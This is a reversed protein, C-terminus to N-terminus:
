LTARDCDVLGSGFFPDFGPAGLDAASAQLRSQIQAPTFSPFRQKILAAAGAVHPCAMSTGSMSRYGNSLHTSNIGVGPAAITVPNAGPPCCTTGFSSFDAKQKNIDVAAVAIAGPSNAPSGVCRFPESPRGSNGAACVVTIGAANLQAIANTYAVRQCSNSGLSMSVIHMGNQRAWAMGALIWSTNGSGADNLVKVAYIRSSPAVGVVGIRNNRAGIVGACHTGHGHGDNFSAVGPIFSAGGSIILDSHSAIGTDLVAVNVGTGRIGRAWAKPANVMNINWPIPQRLLPLPTFPPKPFIPLGPKPEIPFDPRPIPFPKPIPMPFPRPFPMPGGIEGSYTTLSLMQQYYDSAGQQYGQQFYDSAIQSLTEESLSDSADLRDVYDDMLAFMEIDEEVALVRDDKQFRAVDAESLTITTSGLGDFHLIDAPKIEADTAMLSVGDQVKNISVNLIDAAAKQDLSADVYTVIYRKETQKKDM